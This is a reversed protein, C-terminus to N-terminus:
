DEARPMLSGLAIRGTSARLLPYSNKRPNLSAHTKSSIAMKTPSKKRYQAEVKGRYALARVENRSHYAGIAEDWNEFEDYLSKLFKAAYLANSSPSLMADLSAFAHGHWRYNLQFCGVDFSTEGKSVQELAIELLEAENDFWQGIGRINIAWPWPELESNVTRGTEVKAVASLLAESVGTTKSAEQIAHNCEAEAGAKANRPVLWLGLAVISIM